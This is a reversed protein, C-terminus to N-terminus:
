ENPVASGEDEEVVSLSNSVFRDDKFLWVGSVVAFLLEVLATFGEDEVLILAIKLVFAVDVSLPGQYPAVLMEPNLVFAMVEELWSVELLVGFTLNMKALSDDLSVFGIGVALLREPEVKTESLRLADLSLDFLVVKPEVLMVSVALEDLGVFDFAGLTRM